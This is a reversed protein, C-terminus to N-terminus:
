RILTVNGHKEFEKGSLTLAGVQYVFVGFPQPVGKYTGDWGQDIDTTEFVKNGWRNFIRFYKLTGIGRKIITFKSNAGTGPAFANPLDLLSEPYVLIDISDVIKCGWETAAYVVYMTNVEPKAIPDAVYINNLGTSPFWTFKTCNTQPAIHYSEGPYLTVTGNLYIVAGPHVTVSTTLTDRCGFVSTAIVSYKQSTIAKAWPMSGLSDSLYIGPHWEYSIGGTPKFQVSDRPCINFAPAMAAFNGPHVILEASDKASCGAPTSVTLFLQTYNGATFTVSSTNTNDLSAAPSWTYIYHKYWRPQISAIIHLSDFECVMRNDGIHVTPNPQVDIHFSDIRDPCPALSTTLVYTASTDPFIVPNITTSASIGATPLWQYSQASNGTVFTPVFKGRCISTDHNYFNLTDFIITAKITDAAKCGNDTVQVWYLGSVKATDTALTTADSWLYAPATYTGTTSLIYPLGVCSFYDPGLDVVPLPTVSINITDGNVCGNPATVVVSYSGAKYVKINDITSGTNWLYTTGFPQLSALTLTDGACIPVDPGLSVTPPPLSKVIFTDILVHCNKSGYVFYKATGPVSIDVGISTTTVGTSWLYKYYGSAATIVHSTTSACASDLTQKQTTDSTAIIVHFTDIESGCISSSAVYYTGGSSAVISTGTSGTSWLYTDFGRPVKLTIAFFPSCVTTDTTKYVTTVITTIFLNTTDVILSGACNTCRVYYKGASSVIRTPGTSGDDWLYTYGPRARLTVSKVGGCASTDIVNYSTDPPPPIYKAMVFSETAGTSLIDTNVTISGYYDSCMYVNGKSDCAIGQQDDGGGGISKYGAVGGYLDYGAIFAPDRGPDMKLTDGTAIVVDHQPVRPGSGPYPPSGSIWVQGCSALAVSFGLVGLSDTGMTQEWTVADASSYQVLFAAPQPVVNPFGRRITTTGFTITTDCFGGSMYVNGINDSTLDLGLSGHMGDGKEAWMHAGSSGSFRAIYALPDAIGNTITKSGITISPSAFDGCVYVDGTSSVTIGFGYEDDLGGFSTAWLPTGAPSYKAVFVDNTGAISNTLTTSGINMTPETFSSTIYINGTADTAVSGTSMLFTGFSYMMAPMANGDAIAWLVTGSPDIKALFYQARYGTYKNKLIFPGIKIAKPTFSGFVILNGSPDTAINFIYSSSDAVGDAWLLTGTPDYKTWFAQRGGWSGAVVPPMTISGFALPRGLVTEIYGGGFVNGSADTTICWSDVFAASTSTRGWKWMGQASSTPLLSKLPFFILLIILIFTSIPKM